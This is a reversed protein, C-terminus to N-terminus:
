VSTGLGLGIAAGLITLVIMFGFGASQAKAILKEQIDGATVKASTYWTRPVMGMHQDVPLIKAAIAQSVVTVPLGLDSAIEQRSIYKNM